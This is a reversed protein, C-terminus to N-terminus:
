GQLAALAAAIRSSLTDRQSTLTANAENLALLNLAMNDAVTDGERPM